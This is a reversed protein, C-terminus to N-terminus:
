RLTPLQAILTAVHLHIEDRMAETFEQSRLVWQEDSAAECDISITRASAHVAGVSRPATLDLTKEFESGRLLRIAHKSIAAQPEVGASTAVWGTPASRNFFAAAMRSRAAGHACVFLVTSSGSSEEREDKM